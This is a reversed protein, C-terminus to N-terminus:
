HNNLQIVVGIIASIISLVVAVGGCSLGAIALGRGPKNLGIVGLVIAAIALPCGCIPFCAAPIALVGVVLSIIPIPGPGSVPPGTNVNYPNGGIPTTPSAYPNPSPNFPQNKDFNGSM